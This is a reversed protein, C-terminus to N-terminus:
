VRDNVRAGVTIKPVLNQANKGAFATLKVAIKAVSNNLKPAGTKACSETDASGKTVFANDLSAIADVSFNCAGSSM